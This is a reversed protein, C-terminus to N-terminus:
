EDANFSLFKAGGGFYLLQWFDWFYRRCFIELNPYTHKPRTTEVFVRATKLASVYVVQDVALKAGITWFCTTLFILSFSFKSRASRDTWFRKRTVPASDHQASFFPLKGHQFKQGLIHWWNWSQIKLVNFATDDGILTKTDSVYNALFCFLLRLITRQENQLSSAWVTKKIAFHKTSYKFRFLTQRLFKLLHQMCLHDELVLTYRENHRETFHLYVILLLNTWICHTRVLLLSITM